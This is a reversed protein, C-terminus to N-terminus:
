EAILYEEHAALIIGDKFIISLTNMLDPDRTLTTRKRYLRHGFASHESM